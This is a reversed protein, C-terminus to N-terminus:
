IGERKYKLYEEYSTIEDEETANEAEELRKLVHPNFFVIRGLEDKQEQTKMVWIGGIRKRRDDM